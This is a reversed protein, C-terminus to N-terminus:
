WELFLRIGKFELDRCDFVEEMGWSGFVKEIELVRGFGV